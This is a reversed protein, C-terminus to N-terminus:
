PQLEYAGIDCPPTRPLGRQDLGNIPAAACTASDGKGKAPNKSVNALAITKTPGGHDALGAPDLIDALTLGAPIGIISALKTAYSCAVTSRDDDFCGVEPQLPSTNDVILANKLSTSTPYAGQYLLMAGGVTGASNGSITSNVILLDGYGLLLGGALDASGNASITSNSIVIDGVVYMGGGGHFSEPEFYQVKNGTVTSGDIRVTGAAAIGGGYARASNGEITSDIITVGGPAAAEVGGGEWSAVNGRILTDAIDLTGDGYSFVGAGL